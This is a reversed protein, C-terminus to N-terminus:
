LRDLFVGSGPHVHTYTGLTRHEVLGDRGGDIRHAHRGDGRTRRPRAGSVPRVDARRRPPRRADRVTRRGGDDALARLLALTAVTTGVGSRTGSLVFGDM